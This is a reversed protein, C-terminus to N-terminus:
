PNRKQDTHTLMYSLGLMSKWFVGPVSTSPKYNTCLHYKGKLM